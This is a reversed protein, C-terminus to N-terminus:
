RKLDQQLKGLDDNLDQLGFDFTKRYVKSVLKDVEVALSM